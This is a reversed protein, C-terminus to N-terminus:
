ACFGDRSMTAQAVSVFDCHCFFTWIIARARIIRKEAYKAEYRAHTAWFPPPTEGTLKSQMIQLHTHWGALVGLMKEGEQLKRHTVTLRVKDGQEALEFTVESVGDDDPWTFQLLRPPNVEVVEGVHRTEGAYQKFKEPPADDHPTLKANDFVLEIRGGKHFEMEGGALWKSCKEGDTLWEWIREIPGPLIREFRIAEKGIREGYENM